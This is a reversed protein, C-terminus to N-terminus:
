PFNWDGGLAKYLAIYHQLLDAQSQSYADEAELLSKNILLVELYGKFGLHYLQYLTDYAERNAQLAELLRQNKESEFHFSALANEVEELAELVVKQYHYMAQQAKSTNITIDQEIMASNLLPFLTQTGIYSNLFGGSNFAAIDGIFGNLSIRPFLDAVASGVLETASALDREAKRIDPRRRLLESPIGINQLCPLNPLEAIESLGDCFQGPQYGLLVSLRYMASRIGLEIDPKRAQLTLLQAESQKLDFSSSIGSKLLDHTLQHTEHQDHINRELTNLRQQLLRLEIYSKAVEASLTVWLNSYEFEAAETQAKLANFEHLHKGFLDIEWSADFGAEFFNVNGKRSGEKCGGVLKRLVKKDYHVQGCAISGDIHPFLPSKGGKEAARAELIREAVIYLDLNQEYAQEILNELVPDQLARWWVFDGCNQTLPLESDWECPMELAPPEYKPGVACGSLIGLGLLLLYLYRNQIM